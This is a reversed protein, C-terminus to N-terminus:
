DVSPAGSAALLSALWGALLCALSQALRVGGKHQKGRVRYAGTTEGERWPEAVSELSLLSDSRCSQLLPAHLLPSPPLPSVPPPATVSLLGPTVDVNLLRMPESTSESCKETSICRNIPSQRYHGVNVKNVAKRRDAFLNGNVSRLSQPQAAEIEFINKFPFYKDHSLLM